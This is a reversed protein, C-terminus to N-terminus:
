GWWVMPFVWYTVNSTKNYEIVKSIHDILFLYGSDVISQPRCIDFHDAGLSLFRFGVHRASSEPVVVRGHTEGFNFCMWENNYVERQIQEFEFNLRGVELSNEKLYKLCLGKSTFPNSPSFDFQASTHPTAYSYFARINCLFNQVELDRQLNRSTTVMIQKAV